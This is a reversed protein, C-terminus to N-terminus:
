WFLFFQRLVLCGCLHMESRRHTPGRMVLVPAVVFITKVRLYNVTIQNRILTLKPFSIKCKGVNSKKEKRLFSRYLEIQTSCTMKHASCAAIRPIPSVSNLSQSQIAVHKVPSELSLGLLSFTYKVIRQFVIGIM